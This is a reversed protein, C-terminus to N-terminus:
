RLSDILSKYNEKDSKFIYSGAVLINAGNKICIKSTETNIGGDVEIDFDLNLSKKIKNLSIIKEAQETLFKQGGFGPKVTMVIVQDIDKLYNKISEVKVNTNIAIGAKCKGNKITEIIKHPNNDAEPHFSIINSGANIFDQINELVPSIMLHVDLTKRTITKISKVINAGFTINPVFNGDMVDIHIYEAGAKDVLKIEEKIELLDAALISPAIKIM